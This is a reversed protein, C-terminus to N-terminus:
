ENATTKNKGKSGPFSILTDEVLLLAYNLCVEFLRLCVKVIRLTIHSFSFKDNRTLLRLAINLYHYHNM